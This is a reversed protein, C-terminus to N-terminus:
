LPTDDDDAAHQKQRLIAQAQKWAEARADADRELQLGTPREEAWLHLIREVLKEDKAYDRLLGRANFLEDQVENVDDFHIGAAKIWQEARQIRRARDTSDISIVNEGPEAAREIHTALVAWPSRVKGAAYSAAIQDIARAVLQPHTAFVDLIRQELEARPADGGYLEIAKQRLAAWDYTTM